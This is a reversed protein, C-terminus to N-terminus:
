AGGAGRTIRRVATARGSGEDIEFLAGRLGPEGDSPDAHGPRATLFRRLAAERQMGIVGGYPGTMGLDTIFGTGGPLVRADATQV